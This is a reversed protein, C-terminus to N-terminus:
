VIVVRTGPMLKRNVSTSQVFVTFNPNSAPSVKIEYDPLGLLTRAQDGTYLKHSKKDLLAIQKRAQVTEPKTLEYFAEGIKYKRGLQEEVFGAIPSIEDVPLVRYQGPHLGYLASQVVGPTVSAVADTMSFLNRSGRVGTARAVMFSDTTRRIVEGAEVMGRASTADWVAINDSHFGFKKAEFKGRADPVFVAVTWNDPLTGLRRSLTEPRSQSQNEEGDTLVYTLFAHDGYLEPTKALDELAKLTADILPTAGDPRYLGALSPMRLVDKDYFICRINPPGADFNSVTNFLYVTARTEQDLEKSRQALYAIQADAVKVVERALPQMSGSADLVLAIHNIYNPTPTTPVANPANVSRM